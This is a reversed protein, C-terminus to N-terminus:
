PSEGKMEEKKADSLDMGIVEGLRAVSRNQLSLARYYELKFAQLRRQSELLNLFDVQDARYGMDAAKVAQEAQPLVSSQYLTVLREATEVELLIEEILFRTEDKLAEHLAEDRALHHRTELVGQDHRRYFVWPINVSASVGWGNPQAIGQNQFRKLAVQFDPWFKKKALDIEHQSRVIAAQVARLGPRQKFALSELFARDASLSIIEVEHPLGLPFRPPRNLLTNLRAKAVKVKQERTVGENALRALEVQAKLVDQLSVAGTAYKVQTMQEFKRLIEVSEKTVELAKHALYLDYYATKVQAIIEQLTGEYEQRMQFADAQAAKGRLSLTGPFPFRQRLFFILNRTDSLELGSPINWTDFGVEPDDLTNVQAIRAKQAEWQAKARLGRPNKKM